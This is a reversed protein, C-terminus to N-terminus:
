RGALARRVEPPRQGGRPQPRGAGLLRALAAVLQAAGPRGRAPLEHGRDGRDAGRGDAARVDPAPRRRVLHGGLVQHGRDAAPGQDQLLLHGPGPQDRDARGRRRDQHRRLRARCIVELAARLMQERRQDATGPVAERGGCGDDRCGRVDPM